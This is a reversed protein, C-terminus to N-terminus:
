RQFIYSDIILDDGVRKLTINFYFHFGSLSLLISAKRQLDGEKKGSSIRFLHNEGKTSALFRETDMIEQNVLTWILLMQVQFQNKHTNLNIDKLYKEYAFQASERSFLQKTQFHQLNEDQFPIFSRSM